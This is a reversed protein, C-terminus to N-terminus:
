RKTSAKIRALKAEDAIRSIGTTMQEMTKTAGSILGVAMQEINSIKETMWSLQESVKLLQGSIQGARDYSLFAQITRLKNVPVLGLLDYGKGEKIIEAIQKDTLIGALIQESYNGTNTIVEDDSYQFKEPDDKHTLYRLLAHKSDGFEVFNTQCELLNAVTTIKRPTEYEIIFHTHAEVLEGDGTTDKDHNIVWIRASGTMSKIFKDIKKNDWVPKLSATFLRSNDAKRQTKPM